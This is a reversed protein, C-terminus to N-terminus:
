CTGPQVYPATAMAQGLRQEKYQIRQDTSSQFDQTLQEIEDSSAYCFSINGKTPAELCDTIKTRAMKLDFFSTHNEKAWSFDQIVRRGILISDKIM